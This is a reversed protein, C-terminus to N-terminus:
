PTPASPIVIRFGVDDRKDKPQLGARAASRASPEALLWSGGRCVSLRGDKGVPDSRPQEGYAALGDWADSCWEQVNGHLDYLGWPNAALSGVPHTSGLRPDQALLRRAESDRAEPPNSRWVEALPGRATWAQEDPRGPDFPGLITGARCAYEWEAESPLRAGLHPIRANLAECFALADYWSVMEVPLTDGVASSPNKGTVERYLSQPCETSMMWFGATLTVPHLSELPSRGPEGEASGM